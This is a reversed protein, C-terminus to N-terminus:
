VEENTSDLYVGKCFLSAALFCIFTLFFGALSLGLFLIHKDLLYWTLFGLAACFLLLGLVLYLVMWVRRHTM